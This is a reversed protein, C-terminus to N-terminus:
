PAAAWTLQLPELVGVSATASSGGQQQVGPPPCSRDM